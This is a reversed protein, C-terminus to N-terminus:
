VFILCDHFISLFYGKAWFGVPVDAQQSTINDFLDASQLFKRLREPTRVNIGKGKLSKRYADWIAVWGSGSAGSSHGASTIEVVAHEKILPEMEPEVLIVMGGPRLM